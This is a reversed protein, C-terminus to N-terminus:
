RHARWCTDRNADSTSYVVKTAASASYIRTQRCAPKSISGLAKIMSRIARDYFSAAQFSWDVSLTADSDLTTPRTASDRNHQTEKGRDLNALHRAAVAALSDRLLRSHCARVPVVYGFYRETDFIDLWPSIIEVFRRILLPLLNTERHDEDAVEPTANEEGNSPSTPEAGSPTAPQPETVHQSVAPNTGCANGGLTYYVAPDLDFFNDSNTIWDRADSTSAIDLRAESQVEGASTGATSPDAIPPITPPPSAASPIGTSRSLTVSFRDGM